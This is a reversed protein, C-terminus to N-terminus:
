GPLSAQADAVRVCDRGALKAQYMALDAQEILEKIQTGHVGSAAVGISATVHIPQSANGTCQGHYPAGGIIQRLREGESRAQELTAGVSILAFEEGGYRGV